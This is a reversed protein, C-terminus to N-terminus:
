VKLEHANVIREFLYDVASKVNSDLTREVETFFLASDEQTLKELGIGKKVQVKLLEWKIHDVLEMLYESNTKPFVESIRATNDTMAVGMTRSSGLVVVGLNVFEGSVRDPMYRLVQYEFSIM